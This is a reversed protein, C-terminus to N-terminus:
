HDVDYTEGYSQLMELRELERCLAAARDTDGDWFAENIERRLRMIESWIPRPAGVM